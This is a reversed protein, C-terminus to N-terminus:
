FLQYPDTFGRVWQTKLNRKYHGLGGYGPPPYLDLVVVCVLLFLLTPGDREGQKLARIELTLISGALREESVREAFYIFTSYDRPDEGAASRRWFSASGLASRPRLIAQEPLLSLPSGGHEHHM